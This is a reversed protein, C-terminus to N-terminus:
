VIDSLSASVLRIKMTSGCGAFLVGQSARRPDIYDLRILTSGFSELPFIVEDFFIRYPDPLFRDHMM